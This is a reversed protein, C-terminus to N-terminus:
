QDIVSNKNTRHLWYWAGKSSDILIADRFYRSTNKILLKLHQMTSSGKYLCLM